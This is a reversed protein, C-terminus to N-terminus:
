SLPLSITFTSGEELKSTLSVRGGMGEVFAQVISLGLGIGGTNRCRAEDVRYFREFLRAQHHLAIGCGRDCIQLTATERDCDLKITIPTQPKSYQVANDVLNLIAKKLRDRDARIEINPRTAQIELHRSSCLQAMEVIELVLDNLVIRTLQFHMQGSDARALDLLDQLIQITRDAEGVAITLAEKQPETLNQSRRLLSQLYGQVLTLPTRLEHSINSVFQRQQEWAESLRSLMLDLTHALEKVETPAQELQLRAKGLDAAGISRTAQSMQCLPQLSRRVYWAIALTILAIAGLTTVGLHRTMEDLMLRDSTIDKAIYFTGLNQGRVMLPYGCGAFYAGDLAFVEPKTIAEENSILSAINRDGGWNMAQSQALRTGDPRNIWIIWNEASLEDITRQLSEDLPLQRSYLDIDRPFRRAIYQLNQKHTAILQRQMQWSTWIAVSGLGLTTVIAIGATLRFQLSFLDIQPRRTLWPPLLKM